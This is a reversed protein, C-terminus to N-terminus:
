IRKDEHACKLFDLILGSVATFLLLRSHGKLEFVWDVGLAEEQWSGPRVVALLGCDKVVKNPLGELVNWLEWCGEGHPSDEPPTHLVSEDILDCLEEEVLSGM